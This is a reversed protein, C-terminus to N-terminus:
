ALAKEDNSTLAELNHTLGACSDASLGGAVHDLIEYATKRQLTVEPGCGLRIAASDLGIRIRM